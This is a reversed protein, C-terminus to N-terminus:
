QFISKEYTLFIHRWVSNGNFLSQVFKFIVKEGQRIIRQTGLFMDTRWCLFRGALSQVHKQAPHDSMVLLSHIETNPFPYRRRPKYTWTINMHLTNCSFKM